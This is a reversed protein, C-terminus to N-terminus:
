HRRRFWVMSGLLLVSGPMGVVLALQFNVMQKKTMTLKYEKIPKPGISGMLENRALLWNVALNAFEYNAVKDITENGLFISDGLAVIRTAGRDANVGRLGGKEVAAMIPISGIVDRPTPHMEGNRVDSIVRGNESTLALVEAQGADAGNGAPRTKSISRPLLLYLGHSNYLPKVLPHTGFNVVMIDNGRISNASDIVVNNGVQIGWSALLKELGTQKEVSHFNFLALLRGGKSLYKDIRSLEEPLFADTPGAIILLQCEPIEESSTLRLPEVHINNAKLLDEFRSYGMLSETSDLQHEGHGQVFYAKLQRPTSVNLIASTFMQEGKFHTRKVEQSKGALLPQMDMDSLEGDSVIHTRGQSDFIVLNKAQPPLKYKSRIQVASPDLECDVADVSLKPCAFRYEKLLSAVMDYLPAQKEVQKDFYIIVKVQNTIGSLVRLTLPSLETQARFSLPMRWFYRAGLYNIMLVVALLALSSIIVNVSMNWKRAPSFSSPQEPTM